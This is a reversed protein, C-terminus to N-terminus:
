EMVDGSVWDSEPSPVETRELSSVSLFSTTPTTLFSASGSKSVTPSALPSPDSEAEGDHKGGGPVEIENPRASKMTNTNTDKTAMIQCDTKTHISVIRPTSHQEDDREENKCWFGSCTQM